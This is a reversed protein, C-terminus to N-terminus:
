PLVEPALVAGGVGLLAGGALLAALSHQRM